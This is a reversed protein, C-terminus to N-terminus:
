SVRPTPAPTPRPQSFVWESDGRSSTREPQYGAETLFRLLVDRDVIVARDNDPIEVTTEVLMAGFGRSRIWTTTLRGAALVGSRATTIPV